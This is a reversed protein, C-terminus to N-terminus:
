PQLTVTEAAEPASTTHDPPDAAWKAHEAASEHPEVDYSARFTKFLALTSDDIARPLEVGDAEVAVTAVYLGAAYFAEDAQFSVGTVYFVTGAACGGDMVALVADVIQALGIAKGDGKRAAEQSRSNRAVCAIGFRVAAAGDAVTFDMPAVYVAPAEAGFRKVLAASDLDPLGAVTALKGGLASTRIMAVLGDELEALM